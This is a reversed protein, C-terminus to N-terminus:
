LKLTKLRGRPAVSGSLFDPSPQSRLEHLPSLIDYLHTVEDGFLPYLGADHPIPHLDGAQCRGDRM